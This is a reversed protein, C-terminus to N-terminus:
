HRRGRRALVPPGSPRAPHVSSAAPRSRSSSRRAGPRQAGPPRPVAVDRRLAPAQLAVGSDRGAAWLLSRALLSYQYEWYDWYVRSEVPDVAEPLFGDEVYAFAVVRGKGYAKVALM